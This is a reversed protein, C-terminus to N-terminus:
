RANNVSQRGAMLVSNVSAKGQNRGQQQDNNPPVHENEKRNQKLRQALRNIIQSSNQIIRVFQTASHKYTNWLLSVNGM